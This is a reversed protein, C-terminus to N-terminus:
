MGGSTHWMNDGHVNALLVSGPLIGACLPQLSLTLLRSLGRPNLPITLCHSCIIVLVSCSVDSM